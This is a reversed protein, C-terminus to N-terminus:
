EEGGEKPAPPIAPADPNDKQIHFRHEEGCDCPVRYGATCRLPDMQECPNLDDKLCACDEGECYLGDYGNDILHKKVIELVPMSGGEGGATPLPCDPPFEGVMCYDPYEKIRCIYYQTVGSNRVARHPCDQPSEIVVIREESM